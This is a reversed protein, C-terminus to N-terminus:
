WWHKQQWASWVGIWGGYRNNAYATAGHIHAVLNGQGGWKGCPLEQFVNCAGSGTNRASQRCGSEKSAISIAANVEGASLGALVLQGRLVSCDTSVVGSAPKQSPAPAAAAKQSAFLRAKEREAKVVKLQEIEKKLQEETQKQQELQKQQESNSSELKEREQHLREKESELYEIHAQDAKVQKYNNFAAIGGFSIILASIAVILLTIKKSRM